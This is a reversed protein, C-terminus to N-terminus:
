TALRARADVALVCGPGVVLPNVEIEELEPVDVLLRSFRSITTALSTVDVPAEGRVGHLLPGLRLESLMARAEDPSVPALRASTDALIEVYIGGWGVMVLPGFQTDQRGGLL